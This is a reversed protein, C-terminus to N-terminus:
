HLCLLYDPFPFYSFINNKKKELLLRCVLYQRSQLESTHEESRYGVKFSVIENARNVVVKNNIEPRVDKVRNIIPQKGCYYDYLYQIEGRNMHHVTLAKLLVDLVNNDNIESVSTKIMRRGYM